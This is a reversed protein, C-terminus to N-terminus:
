PNIVCFPYAFADLTNKLFQYQARLQEEAPLPQDAEQKM